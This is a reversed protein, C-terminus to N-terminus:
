TIRLGMLLVDDVQELDGKWDYFNKEVLLEQEAMPKDKISLFFEKFRKANLKKGEEGGFQDPYGDTFSYICDGKQLQFKNTSFDKEYSYIAIPQRDAKIDFLTAEISTDVSYCAKINDNEIKSIDAILKNDRIIYLPNFAGSFQLEYTDTDIIFFSIDMGDKAEGEKGSQHLSSKIKERLKNLIEGSSDISRTTVIENLFMLGLMSMFAGPVGHGTCDAITIVVFNKIKKMWFFDGSVINRPRWFIFHEPLIDELFEKSPLVAQQINKAYIISDEIEKKAALILENKEMVLDRQVEIEEKSNQIEKKQEELIANARTKQKYSRYLVFAVFLMVALISLTFIFRMRANAKEKDSIIQQNKLEQNKKDVKYKIGEEIMKDDKARDISDKITIYAKYYKYALNINNQNEYVNALVHYADRIRPKVNLQKGIEIAKEAFIIASKYNNQSLFNEAMENLLQAKQELDAIEDLIKLSKQYYNNTESYKKEYASVRGLNILSLAEGKRDKISERITLSKNYNDVADKYKRENFFVDGINNYCTAIGKQDGLKQKIDLSKKFYDKAWGYLRRQSYIIGINNCCRSVSELDNIKESLVLSKQYYEVAQVPDGQYHFVNGMNRYAKALGADDQIKIQIEVAQKYYNEAAIFDSLNSKSIGLDIYSEAMGKQDNIGTRIVLSKKYNKYAELNDSIAKCYNGMVTYSDSLLTKAFKALDDDGSQSLKTSIEIANNIYQLANEPKSKIYYDAIEVNLRIRVTDHKTKKLELLLSDAFSDAKLQEKTSFSIILLIALLRIHTYM